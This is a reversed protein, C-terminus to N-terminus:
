LYQDADAVPAVLEDPVQMAMEKETMIADLFDIYNDRSDGAIGTPYLESQVLTMAAQLAGADISSTAPDVAGIFILALAAGIDRGFDEVKGLNYNTYAASM